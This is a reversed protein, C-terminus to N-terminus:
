YMTISKDLSKSNNRQSLAFFQLLMNATKWTVDKQLVVPLHLSSFYRIAFFTTLIFFSRLCLFKVLMFFKSSVPLVVLFVKCYRFNCACIAFQITRTCLIASHSSRYIKVQSIGVLNFNDQYNLRGQMKQPRWICYRGLNNSLGNPIVLNLRYFHKWIERTDDVLEM